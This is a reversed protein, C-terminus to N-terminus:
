KNRLIKIFNVIITTVGALITVYVAIESKTWHAFIGLLCTIMFGLVSGSDHQEM